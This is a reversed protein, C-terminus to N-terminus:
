LIRNRIGVTTTFVRRLRNDDPLNGNGSGGDYTVGNFSYSMPAPVLNDGISQVLFTIRVAVVDAWNSVQDAPVFADASNNGDNNTNEGYLIQMDAVGEVLEVATGLQGNSGLARRFLSPPNTAVDGRKGIYYLNGNLVNVTAGVSTKLNGATNAPACTNDLDIQMSTVPSGQPTVACAHVIDAQTCDSLLLIDGASVSFVSTVLQNFAPKTMSNITGELSVSPSSLGDGGGWVRIIDTGPVANINQLVNGGSTGWGTATSTVAVDDTHNSIDGPDTNNAEWGQIGTTPQFSAPLGTMMTNIQSSQITSTCGLYGAMRVDEGLFTVAFQGSEQMRSNAEQTRDSVRIALLVESLGALLTAGIALSVMLEVLSLGAQRRKTNIRHRVNNMPDSDM